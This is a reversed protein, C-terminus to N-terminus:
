VLESLMGKVLSLEKEMGKKTLFRKLRELMRKKGKNTSGRYLNLLREKKLRMKEHMIVEEQDVIDSFPMNEWFPIDELHVHIEPTKYIKRYTAGDVEFIDMFRYKHGAKKIVEKATKNDLLHYGLKKLENDSMLRFHDENLTPVVGTAVRYIRKISRSGYVNKASQVIIRNLDSMRQSLFSMFNSQDKKIFDIDLPFTHSGNRKQYSQIFKEREKTDMLLSMSSLYSALHWMAISRFDERSFGMSSSMLANSAYSKYSKIDVTYSHIDFLATPIPVKGVNKAYSLRLYITEFSKKNTEISNEHNDVAKNKRM